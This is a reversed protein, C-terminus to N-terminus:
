WNDGVIEGFLERQDIEMKEGAWFRFCKKSRRWNDRKAAFASFFIILSPIFFVKNKQKLFVFADM